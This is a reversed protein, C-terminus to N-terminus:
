SKKTTKWVFQFISKFFKYLSDSEIILAYIEDSSYSIIAVKSDYLIIENSIDFIDDDVVCTEYSDIHYHSYQSANDFLIAKTALKQKNRYEKFEWAFFDEFRKDINQTWVFSMFSESINDWEDVIDKFVQKVSDITDYYYIKPKNDYMNSLATLEPLIKELKEYKEKEIKLLQKPSIVSFYKVGNKLVEQAIWRSKLEKLVSYTSVRHEWSRRAIASVISNWLELTAIYIKAERETFNYSQLISYDM